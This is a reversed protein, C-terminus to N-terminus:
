SGTGNEEVDDLWQCIVELKLFIHNELEPNSDGGSERYDFLAPSWYKELMAELADILEDSVTAQRTTPKHM